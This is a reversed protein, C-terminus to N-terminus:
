LGMLGHYVGASLMVVVGAAIGALLDDAMLGLADGRADARGIIWPKWIDFLRFALFGVVWGPWLALLSVEPHGAAGFVVPLLALFQGAVEDIVVESPDRDASDKLLETAAWLGLGAALVTAATLLWPGGALALLYALVVALASGWTGPAPRLYGTGLVTAILRPLNM